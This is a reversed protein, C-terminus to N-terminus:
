YHEEPRDFTELVEVVCPNAALGFVTRCWVEDQTDLTVPSWPGSADALSVPLTFRNPGPGFGTGSEDSIFVPDPGYNVIRMTRREDSKRAIQVNENSISYRTGRWTHPPVADTRIAYDKEKRKPEHSPDNERGLMTDILEEGVQGLFDLANDLTRVPSAETDGQGTEIGRQHEVMDLSAYDSLDDETGVGGEMPEPLSPMKPKLEAFFADRFKRVATRGDKRVPPQIDTM